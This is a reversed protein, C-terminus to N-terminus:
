PLKFGFFNLWLKRSFGIKEREFNKSKGVRLASPMIIDEPPSNDLVGQARDNVMRNAEEEGVIKKALLLAKSLIPPRNKINHADSAIIHVVGDELFKNAWYKAKKGFRGEIAGATLQIWAGMKAAMIFENYSDNNLWKLREPHTILPIYGAKVFNNIQEIFKPVSVHHSPELLFYRSYNLTPILKSKLGDVVEPVLHVDAGMVLKLAVSETDLISQLNELAVQINISNNNYLGPYIHPTCAQITIGDNVAIKAMKLSTDIDPSGDCIAPLIHCHLDIM